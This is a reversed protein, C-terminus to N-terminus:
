ISFMHVYSTNILHANFHFNRILMGLSLFIFLIEGIFLINPTEKFREGIKTGQLLLKFLKVSVFICVSVHWQQTLLVIFCLLSKQFLLLFFTLFYLFTLNYSLFLISPCFVSLFFMFHYIFFCLNHLFFLFSVFKKSCIIQFNLSM